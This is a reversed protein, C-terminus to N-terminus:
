PRKDLWEVQWQLSEQKEGEYRTNVEHGLMASKDNVYVNRVGTEPGTSGKHSSGHGNEVSTVPLVQDM